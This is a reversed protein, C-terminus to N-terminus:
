KERTVTVGWVEKAQHQKLVETWQEMIEGKYSVNVLFLKKGKVPKKIQFNSQLTDKLLPIELRNHLVKAIELAPDFGKKRIEEESSPVAILEKEKWPQPNNLLQFHTIILSALAKSADKVSNQQYEYLLKQLVSNKPPAAFYLGDLNKDQCQKCKSAVHPEECLCYQHELIDALALCDRCLYSGEKGCNVCFKPFLLNTLFSTIKELRKNNM